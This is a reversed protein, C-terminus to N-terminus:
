PADEGRNGRPRRRPRPKPKPGEDKIGPNLNTAGPATKVTVEKSASQLGSASLSLRIQGPAPKKYYVVRNAHGPSISTESIEGSSCNTDAYFKGGSNGDSIKVTIPTVAVVHIGADGISLIIVEVCANQDFSSPPYIGFLLRTPGDAPALKPEINAQAEQQNNEENAEAIASLADLTV